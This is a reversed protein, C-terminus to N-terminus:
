VEGTIIERLVSDYSQACNQWAQERLARERAAEGMKLRFNDDKLLRIVANATEIENEPPVAIGTKGDQIAEVLGSDASVVAPKACLAAEIAAIGYGEFQGNIHRSTMLFVDCVNMLCLIDRADQRGLFHVFESVGLLEALKFYAQKETPLGAMLYHANPIEKLIYPMARIVFEQGKRKTVNGVTLLIKKNELGYKEVFAHKAPDDIVFFAEPDAGNYIVSTRLPKINQLSMQRETHKSVCIVRSAKEFAWKKVVKEVGQPSRGHEVAMWPITGATVAALYIMRDGSALIVDPRVEKLIQRVTFLRKLFALTPNPGAALRLITFPRAENFKEIEEQTVYNQPSAVTVKWGQRALNMALQFAHTGIGGPGPPFESAIILLRPM